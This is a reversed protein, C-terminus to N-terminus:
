LAGNRRRIFWEFSLLLIILILILYYQMIDEQKNKYFIISKQKDKDTLLDTKLVDLQKPFYYKGNNLLALKRLLTHNAETTISEINQAEVIFFGKKTLIENGIKTEAIYTYKGVQLKGLNIHYSADRKEFFYNSKLGEANEVTLKVEVNNILEYNKNYVEADLEIDQNEFYQNKYIVRFFDKDEKVSLYQIIKHILNDFREFSKNNIFDNMRWKWIGEGIFFAYKNNNTENFAILPYQTTINMLKQYALVETSASLSYDAFPSLLPPYNQLEKINQQSQSFINFEKNYNAQAENFSTRSQRINLGTKLNNFHIYNNATGLIFLIPINKSIAQQVLEKSKIVNDPLQHLILINADIDNKKYEDLTSQEFQYTSNTQLAQKIAAIDPHAAHSLLQIKIKSEIVNIFASSNNNYNNIENAVPSIFIRYHHLGKTANTIKTTNKFIYYDSKVNIIQEQIVDNNEKVTLKINEGLCKKAEVWTEVYFDNGFLATKNYNVKQIKLDKFITTDGLLVSYVPVNWEEMTYLPNMGQNVIGDSILVIAAINQNFHRKQLEKIANSVDTYNDTFSFSLTDKLKEGFGYTIVEYNNQLEAILNLTQKNFQQTYFTSDKNLKISKSNDNLLLIKPKDVEKSKSRITPSLFLFAILSVVIWRLGFLLYTIRKSFTIVAKYYLLFAYVFGLILCLLLFILPLETIISINFM